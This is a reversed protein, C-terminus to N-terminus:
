RGGEPRYGAKWLAAAKVWLAIKRRTLTPYGEEFPDVKLARRMHGCILVWGAPNADHFLSVMREPPLPGTKKLEKVTQRCMRLLHAGRASIRVDLNELYEPDFGLYEGVTKEMM